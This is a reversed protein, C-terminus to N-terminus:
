QDPVEDKLREEALYGQLMSSIKDDPLNPRGAELAQRLHTETHIWESEGL